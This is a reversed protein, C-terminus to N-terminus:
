CFHSALLLGTTAVLLKLPKLFIQLESMGLNSSIPIDDFLFMSEVLGVIPSCICLNAKFLRVAQGELSYKLFSEAKRVGLEEFFHWKKKTSPCGGM